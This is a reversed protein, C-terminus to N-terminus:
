GKGTESFPLALSRHSKPNTVSWLTSDFLEPSNTVWKRLNFGGESMMRKSMHYVKFAREISTEGCVLDDVYLSEQILKVIYPNDSKYKLLHNSIVAGLIAPSPQLGFVL